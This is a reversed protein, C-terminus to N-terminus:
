PRRPIALEDGPYIMRCDEIQPNAECVPRWVDDAWPFYRGPAWELAIGYMTEGWEVRHRGLLAPTPTASPSIRATPTATVKEPVSTAAVPTRTAQAWTPASTPTQRTVLVATSTVPPTITAPPPPEARCGRGIILALGAAALVLALGFLMMRSYSGKGM